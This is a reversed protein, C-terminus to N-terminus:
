RMSARSRAAASTALRSGCPPPSFTHRSRRRDCRRHPPAPDQGSGRRRIAAPFMSSDRCSAAGQPRGGRGSAVKRWVARSSSANDAQRALSVTAARCHSSQNGTVALRRWAQARTGFRQLRQQRRDGLASPLFDLQTLFRGHAARLTQDCSCDEDRQGARQGAAGAAHAIPIRRSISSKRSVLFFSGPSRLGTKGSPTGPRSCPTGFSNYLPARLLLRRDASRGPQPRRRAAAPPASISSSGRFGLALLGPWWRRLAPSQARRQRDRHRAPPLPCCRRPAAPEWAWSFRGCACWRAAARDVPRAAPWAQAGRLLGGRWERRRHRAASERASKRKENSQCAGGFFPAPIM